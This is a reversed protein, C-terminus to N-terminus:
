NSDSANSEIRLVVTARDPNDADVVKPLLGGMVRFYTDPYKKAFERVEAEGWLGVILNRMLIGKNEDKKRGGVKPHGKKFPNPM